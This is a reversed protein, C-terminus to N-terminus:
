PALLPGPSLFPDKLSSFILYSRIFPYLSILVPYNLPTFSPIAAYLFSSSSFYSISFGKQFAM